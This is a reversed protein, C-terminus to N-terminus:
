RSMIHPSLTWKQPSCTLCTTPQVTFDNTVHGAAPKHLQLCALVTSYIRRPWSYLFPWPWAMDYSSSTMVVLWIARDTVAVQHSSATASIKALFIHTRWLHWIYQLLPWYRTQGQSFDSDQFILGWRRSSNQLPSLKVLSRAPTM